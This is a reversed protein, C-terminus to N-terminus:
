KKGGKLITRDQDCILVVIRERKVKIKELLLELKKILLVEDERGDIYIAELVLLENFCAMNVEKEQLSSAM